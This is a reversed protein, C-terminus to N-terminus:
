IERLVARVPSGDAGVIKLPLAILEYVGGSVDKLDIGELIWIDHRHLELHNKLEKSDISDVSPLDVGILNINKEALKGPVDETMTPITEPFVTRDGWYDTKILVSTIEQDTVFPLIDVASIKDKGRCDVVATKSIYRDLSLENVKQGAQDFHFPADIHTGMHTSSEIKGVNVSGSEEIDWSVEYQFLTDGPWVAAAESLEMSIDIIKKM